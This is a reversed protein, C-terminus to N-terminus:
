ETRVLPWYKVQFDSNTTLPSFKAAFLLFFGVLFVADQVASLIQQLPLKAASM